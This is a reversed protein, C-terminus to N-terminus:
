YNKNKNKAHNGWLIFIIKKSIETNILLNLINKNSKFFSEWSFVDLTDM